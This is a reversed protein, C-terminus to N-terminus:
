LKSVKEIFTKGGTKIHILYIGSQLSSLNITGEFQNIRNIDTPIELNQGTISYLEIKVMKLSGPLILKMYNCVPNPYLKIENSATSEEISIVQGQNLIFQNDASIPNSADLTISLADSELGAKEVKIFYSGYELQNFAFNGIENTLRFDMPNMLGDYLLVAINRAPDGNAKIAPFWEDDFIDPNYSDDDGQFIKGEISASGTTYPIVPEIILDVSNTHNVVEIWNADQWELKNVYYGPIGYGNEPQPIAYLMYDGAHIGEIFYAGNVVPCKYEANHGNTTTQYLLLMGLPLNSKTNTSVTGSLSITQVSDVASSGSAAFYQQNPFSSQYSAIAAHESTNSADWFKWQFEDGAVFGDKNTTSLNDSYALLTTTVPQWVIYGGCYATGNDEYFVGIMDNQEIPIGNIELNATAPIEITHYNGIFNLQWPPLVSFDLIFCVDNTCLNADTVTLYYTGPVLNYIDETSEGNNWLFSYPSQGGSITVDIAGNSGIAPDIQTVNGTIVVPPASQVNFSLFIEPDPIIDLDDITSLGNTVYEGQTPMLPSYVANVSEVIGTSNRWIKWTFTELNDFGDKQPSSIDNGWVTVAQPTSTAPIEVYGGCEYLGNSLYFVGVFDGIQLNASDLSEYTLLVTHNIGTIVYTWPMIASSPNTNDTITVDYTGPCLGSQDETTESNSWSFFYPQYGGTITIDIEGNCYGTCTENGALGSADLATFPAYLTYSFSAECGLADTITVQYNGAALNTIDENTSGTSWLFTYPSTGGTPDLYIWGDTSTQTSTNYNNYNSFAPNALLPQPPTLLLNVTSSASITYSSHADGRFIGSLGNTQFYSTNPHLTDFGMMMVNQLYTSSSWLRWNLLENETLGDKGPTAPNDGYITMNIISGQFESYGACKWVGGDSYFAGIYDGNVIPIGDLHLNNAPIEVTHSIGTSVYNWPNTSSIMPVNADEVTLNYFDACLNDVDETTAGNSWSFNFPSVGSTVSIDIEGDCSNLCSEPTITYTIVPAQAWSYYGIFHDSIYQCGNLDTTTCTYTGANLSDIYFGAENNSWLYSYPSVGGSATISITGLANVITDIHYTSITTSISGPENISFTQTVSSTDSDNITVSYNGAPLNQVSQITDGTSWLYYYPSFGGTAYVEVSGTSDGACIVNTINLSATLTDYSIPSYIGINPLGERCANSGLNIAQDVYNCSLGFNAPNNIRGLYSTNSRALYIKNDPGLQLAGGYPTPLLGVIQESAIIAASTTLSIDWQRIQDGWRESGFMYNGDHSFEVGYCDNFNTGTFTIPNSIAGTAADFDFLEYTDLGEIGVALKNGAQSFKLYGRTVASSGSYTSGISSIVPTTNVGTSTVQYAIFNNSNWAHSVVWFDTGNAHLSGNIKESCPTTLIVNKETLVVDGLGSNLSMDILSYSLGNTGINADVAFLYYLNYSGPKQVIFASQTSSPDGLLLGGPSTALSNTMATHNSNWVTIGDTYFLLNCNADSMVACGENTIISSGTVTTPDGNSLTTCFTIGAQQGFYWTGTPVQSIGPKLFLLLTLLLLTIKKM